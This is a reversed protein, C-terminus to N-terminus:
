TDSEADDVRIDQSVALIAETRFKIVILIQYAINCPRKRKVNEVNFDYM